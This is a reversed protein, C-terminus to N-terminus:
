EIALVLLAADRPPRLLNWANHAQIRGWFAVPLAGLGRSECLGVITVDAQDAAKERDVRMDDIGKNYAYSLVEMPIVICAAVAIFTVAGLLAGKLLNEAVLAGVVIFLLFIAGIVLRVLAGIGTYDPAM